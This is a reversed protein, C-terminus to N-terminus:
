RPIARVVHQNSPKSVRAAVTATPPVKRRFITESHHPIRLGSEDSISCHVKKTTAHHNDNHAQPGYIPNKGPYEEPIKGDRNERRLLRIRSPLPSGDFNAIGYVALTPVTLFRSDAERKFLVTNKLVALFIGDHHLITLFTGGHALVTLVTRALRTHRHVAPLGTPLPCSPSNKFQLEIRM